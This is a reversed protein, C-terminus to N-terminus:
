CMLHGRLLSRPIALELRLDMLDGVKAYIKNQCRKDRRFFHALKEVGGAVFYELQKLEM